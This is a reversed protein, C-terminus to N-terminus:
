PTYRWLDNPLPRGTANGSGSFLWMNNNRDSWGAAQDRAGPFSTPAAVNRTGYNGPQNTTDAGSIWTWMNTVTDFKWLDNLGGWRVSRSSAFGRGGFLWLMNNRDVWAVSGSRAGPANDTAAVGKEGYVGHIFNNGQRVVNSGSVWTWSTGDFKWLDNLNNPQGQSDYGNGGFIWVSNNRDVWSVAGNRAGPHNNASAVGKQGYVGPAGIVNSGSVWTWNAGDFKWLDNLPGFGDRSDIGYGGFIWLNNGIDVWTVALHRAGPTNTPSPVGKTGYNGVQHRQNAGSVWTWNTGDFKWLDNLHGWNDDSIWGSGGFLWLNNHRDTWGMACARAGPVNTSASVGKTGYNGGKKEINNGTVLTWHKGDFKWFDNLVPANKVYGGFLWMNNKSDVWTVACGRARPVNLPVASANSGQVSPENVTSDGDVWVWKNGACGSVAIVLGTIALFKILSFQLLSSITRLM